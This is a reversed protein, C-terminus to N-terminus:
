PEVAGPVLALIYGGLAALVVSTLRTLRVQLRTPEVDDLSRTRGIADRQEYFRAVRYPSLVGCVGLTAISFGFLLALLKSVGM